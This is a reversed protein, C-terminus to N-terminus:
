FIRTDFDADMLQVNGLEESSIDKFDRGDPLFISRNSAQERFAYKSYFSRLPSYSSLAKATSVGNNICWNIFGKFLDEADSSATKYNLFLISAWNEGKVEHLRFILIGKGKTAIRYQNMFPSDLFRWKIWDKDHKYGIDTDEQSIRMVNEVDDQIPVPNISKFSTSMLLKLKYVPSALRILFSKLGKYKNLIRPSDLKILFRYEIPDDFFIWGIKEELPRAKENSGTGLTIELRSMMDLLIKKGLSRGRCASDVFLDMLFGANKTANDINFRIPIVGLFGFVEGHQNVIAISPCHKFHGYFWSYHKSFVKPDRNNFVSLLYKRLNDENVEEVSVIRFNNKDNVDTSM